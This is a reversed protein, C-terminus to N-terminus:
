IFHFWIYKVLAFTNAIFARLRNIYRCMIYVQVLNFQIVLKLTISHKSILLFKLQKITNKRLAYAFHFYFIIERERSRHTHTHTNTHYNLVDFPWYLAELLAEQCNYALTSQLWMRIVIFTGSKINQNVYDLYIYKIICILNM